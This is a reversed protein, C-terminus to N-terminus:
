SFRIKAISIVEKRRSERMVFLVMVIVVIMGSFMM